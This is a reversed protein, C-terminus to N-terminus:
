DADPQREPLADAFAPLANCRAEIATLAPYPALDVGFRRAHYLQPILCCDALGPTDGFCFADPTGSRQVLAECGALGAATWTQVWANVGDDGQGLRERLYGLVRLNNIPHIDAAIALAFARVHARGVPDAPLLPPEPRTEELYEIIALSQTLVAGGDELTPVLGQPNLARYSAARHQGGDKRLHVGVFDPSLGKLNLAIRVRYSAGSRYYGHIIM